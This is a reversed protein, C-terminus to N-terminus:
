RRILVCESFVTGARSLGADGTSVGYTAWLLHEPFLLEVSSCILWLFFVGHFASSGKTIDSLRLFYKFITSLSFMIRHLPFLLIHIKFIFFYM